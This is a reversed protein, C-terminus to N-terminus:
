EEVPDHAIKIKVISGPVVTNPLLYRPIELLNYDTDVLTAM